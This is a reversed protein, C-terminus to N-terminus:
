LDTFPDHQPMDSQVSHIRVTSVEVSRFGYQRREPNFSIPLDQLHSAQKMPSKKETLLRLEHHDIKKQHYESALWPEQRLSVELNTERIGRIIPHVPPCSRRGLFLPFVPNQLATELCKLYSVDSSELGVLFVADSLYYRHTIYADKVSHAIHYDRLLVGEQDVRVGFRLANLASLNQDRRMGLAAALLGVVGSKTPEYETRRIEFKADSGWAQIPAALRLLLTSM